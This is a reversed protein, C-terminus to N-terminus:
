LIPGTLGQSALYLGLASLVAAWRPAPGSALRDRIASFLWACLSFVAGGAWALKWAASASVLGACWPLLGFAAAALLVSSPRLPTATGHLSHDALLAALSLLTLNPIDPRPLILAPAFTRVLLGTLCALGVFLAPLTSLFPANRRM